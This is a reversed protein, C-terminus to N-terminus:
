LSPQIFSFLIFVPLLSLGDNNSTQLDRMEERLLHEVLGTLTTDKATAMMRAERWLSREINMSVEKKQNMNKNMNKNSM